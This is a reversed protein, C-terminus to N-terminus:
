TVHEAVPRIIPTYCHQQSAKNQSLLSAILRWPTPLIWRDWWPERRKWASEVQRMAPAPSRHCARRAIIPKQQQTLHVDITTVIFAPQKVMSAVLPSQQRPDLVMGTMGTQM